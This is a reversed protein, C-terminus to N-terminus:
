RGAERLLIAIKTKTALDVDRWEVNGLIPDLDDDTPGDPSSWCGTVFLDDGTLILRDCPGEDAYTGDVREVYVDHGIKVPRIRWNYGEENPPDHEAEIVTGNTFHLYMPGYVGCEDRQDGSWCLNDDSSGYVEVRM